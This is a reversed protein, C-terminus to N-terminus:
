VKYWTRGRFMSKVRDMRYLCVKYVTWGTYVYNICQRDYLCVKFGTRGKVYKICQGAQIFM